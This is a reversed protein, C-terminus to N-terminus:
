RGRPAGNINLRNGVWPGGGPLGVAAYTICVTGQDISCATFANDASRIDGAVMINSANGNNRHVQPLFGAAMAHVAGGPQTQVRCRASAGLPLRDHNNTLMDLVLMQGIGRLM